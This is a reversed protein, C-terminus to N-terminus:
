SKDRHAPLKALTGTLDQGHVPVRDSQLAAIHDAFWPKLALLTYTILGTEKSYRLLRPFDRRRRAKKYRLRPM